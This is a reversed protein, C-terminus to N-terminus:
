NRILVSTYFTVAGQWKDNQHPINVNGTKSQVVQIIKTKHQGIKTLKQQKKKVYDNVWKIM